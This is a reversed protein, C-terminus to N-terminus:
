VGLYNIDAGPSFYDESFTESLYVADGFPLLLPEISLSMGDLRHPFPPQLEMEARLGRSLQM